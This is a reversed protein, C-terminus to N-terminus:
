LTALIQQGNELFYETLSAKCLGLYVGLKLKLDIYSPAEIEGFIKNM